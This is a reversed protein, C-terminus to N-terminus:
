YPGHICRRCCSIRAMVRYSHRVRAVMVRCSQRVRALCTAAEIRVRYFCRENELTDTLAMRTKPTPFSKLAAIAKSCVVVHVHLHYMYMYMSM